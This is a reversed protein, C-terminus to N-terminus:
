GDNSRNIKKIVVYGILFFSYSLFLELISLRYKLTSKFMYFISSLIFGFIINYTKIYYRELLKKVLRTFVLVGISLGIGFPLLISFNDIIQKINTLNSLVTMLMEYCGLMMLIATGSLGPIIMCMADIFGIFIYFLFRYSSNNVLSHFQLINSSIFLVLIFSLITLYTYKKNTNKSIDHISGCILGLFLFITLVYYNNLLNIVIKSSFIIALIIGLFLPCLYIFNKKIDHFFNCFCYIAQEYVGLSIAILSGSVGPIVKGLGILLGFFFRKLIKM